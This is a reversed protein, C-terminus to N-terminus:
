VVYDSDVVNYGSDIQNTLAADIGANMRCHAMKFTASVGNGTYSVNESSTDGYFDCAYFCPGDDEVGVSPTDVQTVVKLKCRILVAAGQFIPYEDSAIDTVTCDELLATQAATSRGFSASGAKCRRFTGNVTGLDGFSHTGSECDELVAASSVVAADSDSPNCGFNATGTCLTRYAAGSFTAVYGVGAVAGEACGFCKTQASCDLLNAECEAAGANSYGFSNTTARSELCTGSCNATMTVGNSGTYHAAGFSYTLAFCRMKTGFSEAYGNNLDGALAGFSYDGAWCDEMYGGCQIQGGTPDAYASATDFGCFSYDDGSCRIANGKWYGNFLFGTLTTHCDEFRAYNWVNGATRDQVVARVTGASNVNARFGVDKFFVNQMARESLVLCAKEEAVQTNQEFTLGRFVADDCDVSLKNANAYIVVDPYEIPTATLSYQNRLCRGEGVLDIFDTDLVLDNKISYTGKRFRIAVRNTASKAQGGPTMAEAISYAYSFSQYPNSPSGDGTTDSGNTTDVWIEGIAAEVVTGPEAYVGVQSVIEWRLTDAAVISLSAGPPITVSTGKDVGNYYIKTGGMGVDTVDVTVGTILEEAWLHFISWVGESDAVIDPLAFTSNNLNARFRLGSQWAELALAAGSGHEIVSQFWGKPNERHINPPQAAM